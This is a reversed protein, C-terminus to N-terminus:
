ALRSSGCSFHFFPFIARSIYMLSFNLINVFVEEVLCRQHSDTEKSSLVAGSVLSAVALREPSIQYTSVFRM